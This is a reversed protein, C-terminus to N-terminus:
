QNFSLLSLVKLRSLSGDVKQQLGQHLHIRRLLSRSPHMPLPALRQCTTSISACGLASRATLRLSHVLKTTKSPGRTQQPHEPARPMMTRFQIMAQQQASAALPTAPAHKAKTSHKALMQLMM